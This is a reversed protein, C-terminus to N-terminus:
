YIMSKFHKLEKDIKKVDGGVIKKMLAWFRESHNKEVTHCLEHLILYDILHSPLRMLHINLNINNKSSCSGWRTKANKFFLKNYTFGYKVAMEKVRGPLVEKAERRLAREIGTRVAQQVDPETVQYKVPYSVRIEGSIIRVSIKGSKKRQIRLHHKQTHFETNEDFVTRQKELENMRALHKLIWDKNQLVFKEAKLFSSNKPVSVRVDKFPKVIINIRKARRSKYFQINGIGNFNKIKDSPM